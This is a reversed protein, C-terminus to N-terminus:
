PCDPVLKETIVHERVFVSNICDKFMLKYGASEIACRNRYDTSKTSYLDPHTDVLEIIIMKPLYRNLSFGALVSDEFGEVDIVLLDFGSQVDCEELLDDLTWASVEMSEGVLAHQAWGVNTYEEVLSSNATTLPGALQLTLFDQDPSSVARECVLVDHAVHNRRCEEAYKPQPEIYIGRWGKAALGYTNSYTVGDFAGVEVFIGSVRDGLFYSFLFGLQPIQCSSVIPYFSGGADSANMFHIKRSGM